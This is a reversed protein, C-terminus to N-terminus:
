DSALIAGRNKPPPTYSKLTVSDRHRKRCFQRHPLALRHHQRRL